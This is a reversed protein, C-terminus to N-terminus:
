FFTDLYQLLAHRHLQADASPARSLTPNPNGTVHHAQGSAGVRSVRHSTLIKRGRKNNKPSRAKPLPYGGGCAKGKKSLIM